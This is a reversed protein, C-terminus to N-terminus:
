LNSTRVFLLVPIQLIAAMLTKKYSKLGTYLLAAKGWFIIAASYKISMSGPKPLAVDIGTVAPILILLAGAVTFVVPKDLPTCLNNMRLLFKSPEHLMAEM